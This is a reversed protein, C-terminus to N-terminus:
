IQKILNINNECKARARVINHKTVIVFEVNWNECAYITIKVRKSHTRRIRM